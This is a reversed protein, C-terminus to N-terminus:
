LLKKIVADISAYLDQTTGNNEIKFDAATVMDAVYIETQREHEKVFDEYSIKDDSREGRNYTREYRTRQDTVLGILYFNPLTKLETIDAPRRISEVVILNNTDAEVAKKMPKALVGEGFRPALVLFMDILNDRTIPLCLYELIHKLMFSFSHRSAGYRDALYNMATSKGSGMEGVLGIIIKKSESMILLHLATTIKKM